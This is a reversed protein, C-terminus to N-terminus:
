FKINIEEIQHMNLSEHVQRIVNEPTGLVLFQFIRTDTYVIDGKFYAIWKTGFWQSKKLSATVTAPKM